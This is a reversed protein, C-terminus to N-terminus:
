PTASVEASWVSEGWGHVATVVYFWQTRTTASTDRFTLVPVGSWYPTEQGSKDSRYVTYSVVPTGGDSVPPQWTIDVTGQGPSTANPSQPPGPATPSPTPSPAQSPTPSDTPVPTPTDTPAATPSPTPSASQRPTPTAGRGPLPRPTATGLPTLTEDPTPTVRAVTPRPTATSDLVGQAPTQSAVAIPGGVDSQGILQSVGAGVIVAGLMVGAAAGGLRAARLLGSRQATAPAMPMAALGPDVLALLDIAAISRRCAVCVSAHVALDRPPDGEPGATLWESFRRHAENM